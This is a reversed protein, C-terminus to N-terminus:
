KIYEHSYGGHMYLLELGKQGNVELSNLEAQKGDSSVFIFEFDKYKIVNGQSFEIPKEEGIDIEIDLMLYDKYGTPRYGVKEIEIDMSNKIIFYYPEEGDLVSDWDTKVPKPRPTSSLNSTVTPVSLMSSYYYTDGGSISLDSEKCAALGLIFLLSLIICLQAKIKM